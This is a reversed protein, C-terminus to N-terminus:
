LGGLAWRRALGIYLYIYLKARRQPQKLIWRCKMPGPSLWGGSFPLLFRLTGQQGQESFSLAPTQDSKWTLCTLCVLQRHRTQSWDFFTLRTQDSVDSHLFDSQRVKQRVKTQSKTQFWPFESFDTFITFNNKGNKILKRIKSFNILIPSFIKVTKM